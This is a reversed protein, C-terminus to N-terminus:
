LGLGPRVRSKKEAEEQEGKLRLMYALAAAGAGFLLMGLAGALRAGLALPRLM